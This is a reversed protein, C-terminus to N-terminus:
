TERRFMPRSSNNLILQYIEWMKKLKQAPHSSEDFVENNAFHLYKMILSFKYGSMVIGFFPTALLKNTTWYWKQLPKGVVGQLIILGIFKWIDERTVPEWKRSRTFRQHTAVQQEKFWNTEM